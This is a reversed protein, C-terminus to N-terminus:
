HKQGSAKRNDIGRAMVVGLCTNPLKEFIENEVRFYM